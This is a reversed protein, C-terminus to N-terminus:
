QISSETESPSPKSVIANVGEAALLLDSDSLRKGQITLPNEWEGPLRPDESQPAFLRSLAETMSPRNDPDREWCDNMLAWINDTLGRAILQEMIRPPRTPRAGSLVKRLVTQETRDESFPLLDTFIEYCACAWGYVDSARTNVPEEDDFLEFLEPAQWRITGGRPEAGSWSSGLSVDVTGELRSIGFDGLYARCCADVLINAGKIDGHIIGNDHLYTVGGAVDSCLHLQKSATAM